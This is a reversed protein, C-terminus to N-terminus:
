VVEEISEEKDEQLNKITDFLGLIKTEKAPFRNKLDFIMKAASLSERSSEGMLIEYVKAIVIGDDIQALLVQFGKKSLLNREPDRATEESYGGETMVVKLSFPKKAQVAELFANFANKQRVTPKIEGSKTVKNKAMRYTKVKIKKTKWEEEEGRKSKRM